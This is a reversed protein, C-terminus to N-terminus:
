RRESVIRNAVELAEMYIDVEFSTSKRMINVSQLLLSKEDCTLIEVASIADIALQHELTVPGEFDIGYSDDVNTVDDSPTYQM